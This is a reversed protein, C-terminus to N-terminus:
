DKLNYRITKLAGIYGVFYAVDEWDQLDLTELYDELENKNDCLGKFLNKHYEWCDSLTDKIIKDIEKKEM